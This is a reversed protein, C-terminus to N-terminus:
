SFYQSKTRDPHTGIFKELDKLSYAPTAGEKTAVFAGLYNAEEAMKQLSGKNLYNVILSAAFADGAGTTDVPQIVVGPSYFEENKNKLFCGEEGLTLAILKIPFDTLLREMFSHTGLGQQQFTQSLNEIESQNVKLIDAFELSTRVVEKTEYDWTRINLDYIKITNKAAKLFKRISERATKSRQAISGFLVADAQDALEALEPRFELYDFAVDLSCHFSPVSKVDLKIFVTGTGRFEDTQIYQTSVKRRKLVAVMERGLGDDGIRSVVFSKCGLQQAHIAFNAPAGGLFKSDGYIDWLIEGIGVIVFQKQM